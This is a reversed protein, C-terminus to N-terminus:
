QVAVMAPSADFLQKSPQLVKTSENCSVFIPNLNINAKKMENADDNEHSMIKSIAELFGM